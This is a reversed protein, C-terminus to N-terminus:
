KKRKLFYIEKPLNSLNKNEGINKISRNETSIGIAVHPYDQFENLSMPHQILLTDRWESEKIIKKSFVNM